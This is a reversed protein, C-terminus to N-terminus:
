RKLIQHTDSSEWLRIFHIWIWPTLDNVFLCLNCFFQSKSLVVCSSTEWFLYPIINCQLNQCKSQNKKIIASDFIVYVHMSILKMYMQSPEYTPSHKIIIIIVDEFTFIMHMSCKKHVQIPNMHLRTYICISLWWLTHV